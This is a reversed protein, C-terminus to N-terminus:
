YNSLYNKTIIRIVYDYKENDEGTEFLTQAVAAGTITKYDLIKIIITKDSLLASV